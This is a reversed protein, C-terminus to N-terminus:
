KKADKNKLSVFLMEMEGKGKAEIKGRSEFKFDPDHKLLEYTAESINVKGAESHSEIRSATNVTDGWVDYQFKKVGVIGAVVPGTHVGARMRFAAKGEKTQAQYRAEIFEQMELAALVANKVSDEGPVPLGGAAMYADGITKIKEVGHKETIHDFAEFCHNIENVLDAASLKESQETFDKFDTFLISVQDFDRADAKGKEKLEAAIDAPLINLLLNESRDKEIQLVAKSERIYRLRSYIGGALLLALFGGTISWNRTKEEQRMEEEHAQQVLRAEEEKAISDQLAQKVFEMQELKKATEEAQLSDELVRMKELYVLAENGNGLAKYIEYLCDCAKKQRGLVGIEDALDLSQQCYDLAQTANGQEQYILGINNLSAAIGVKDGIEEKIALSEQYYELARHYNGQYKYIIGIHGLSAAIGRKDEIEEYIARSKQYYELAQAYKGQSRYIIGVNGTCSAIGRKYGIEEYISLSKQFYELARLENGQELYIGGINNLSHAIGLKYGLEEYISSSKQFYDLARPYNGQENYISGINNLRGAIGRQDGIEEVIGLSKQYYDLASSYNGQNKYILGINGLRTAIGRKDGIEEAIILSQQYYELANSYNGRIAFSAGQTNLSIAMHKKLGKSKAYDYQKQAYYFASDPQSFLYGDWAIKNIAKLRTTDPQSPDQWITFLSDINQAAMSLTFVSLYLTFFLSFYILTGQSLLFRPRNTSHM